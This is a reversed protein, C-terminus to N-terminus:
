IRMLGILIKNKKRLLGGQLQYHSVSVQQQLQQLIQLLKQDKLYSAKILEELDSSVISLAMCLVENGNGHVLWMKLEVKINSKM